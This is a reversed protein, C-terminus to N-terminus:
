ESHPQHIHTYPPSRQGAPKAPVSSGRTRWTGPSQHASRIESIVTSLRQNVACILGSHNACPSRLADLLLKPNSGGFRPWSRIPGLQYYHLRLPPDCPTERSPRCVQSEVFWQYDSDREEDIFKTRSSYVWTPLRLSKTFKYFICLDSSKEQWSQFEKAINSRRTSPRLLVLELCM